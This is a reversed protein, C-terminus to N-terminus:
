EPERVIRLKGQFVFAVQRAPSVLGMVGIGVALMSVVVVIFVWM